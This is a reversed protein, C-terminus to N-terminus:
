VSSEISQTSLRRLVPPPRFVEKPTPHHEYVMQQHVLTFYRGRLGMLHAHTGFEVIQGQDMVFIMDAERVTSLRHAVTVSTKRPTTNIMKDIAGQILAESVQDLASTPQVSDTHIRFQEM